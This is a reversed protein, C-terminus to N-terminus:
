NQLLSQRQCFILQSVAKLILLLKEASDLLLASCPPAHSLEPWDGSSVSQLYGLGEVDRGRVLRNKLPHAVFGFLNLANM